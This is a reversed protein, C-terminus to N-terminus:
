PREGLPLHIEITVRGKSTMAQLYGGLDRARMGLSLPRPATDSLPKTVDNEVTCVLDNDVRELLVAINRAGAHRVANSVAERLMQFLDYALRSPVELQDPLATMEISVQWHRALLKCQEAMEAPLALRGDDMEARRLRAILLNINLIEADIASAIRDVSQALLARDDGAMTMSKLWFRAGALSQAVSDHLDRALAQRQAQLTAEQNRMLTLSDDLYRSITRALEAALWAHGWGLCDIDLVVLCGRGAPNHFPLYIGDDRGLRALIAREAESMATSHLTGTSDVHLWRRASICFLSAARDVIPQFCCAGGQTEITPGATGWPILQCDARDPRAWCLIAGRGGTQTAALALAERNAKERDPTEAPMRLVPGWDRVSAVAMLIVGTVVLMLGIRRVAHGMDLHGMQWELVFCTAWCALNLGLAALCLRQWNWRLSTEMMILVVLVLVSALHGNSPSEDLFPAALYVAWDMAVFVPLLRFDWWWRLRAVLLAGAAGLLYALFLFDDPEHVFGIHDPDAMSILFLALALALRWAAIAAEGNRVLQRSLWNM